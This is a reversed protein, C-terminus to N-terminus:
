ASSLSKLAFIILSFNLIGVGFRKRIMAWAILSLIDCCSIHWNVPKSEQNTSCIALKTLISSFIL